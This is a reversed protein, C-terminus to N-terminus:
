HKKRSNVATRNVASRNVATGRAGKSVALALMAIAILTWLVAWVISPIHTHEALIAADTGARRTSDWLDDKLDFLAYLSIYTSVFFALLQTWSQSIYKAVLGFAIGTGISVSITFLSRAWLTGVLLLSICLIWLVIKGSKRRLTLYLLLSGALASGLYGASSVVIENAVTPDFSMTCLGGEHSNITISDVTGGVIKAALAHGAEHFLVTILRLPFLFPSNWFFLGTALAIVIAIIKKYDM